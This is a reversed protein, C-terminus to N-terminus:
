RASRPAAPARHSRGGNAVAITGAVTGTGGLTATNAVAVASGSALAGTVLVTGAGVTTAGTYTSAGSLTQAGTGTKTVALAGATNKLVGAFTATANNGGLTLTPTGSGGDLTGTGSLGNITESFGNMTFAGGDVLNGASAGDPIQNAAGLVIADRTGTIVTDGQYNNATGANALTLTLLNGSSNDMSLGFAGTIQGSLTAAGNGAGGTSFTAAALNATITGSLVNGTTDFRFGVRDNGLATDFVVGNKLAIGTATDLLVGAHDTIADGITIAGTGYPSSTITGATTIAGTVRMRTGGSANNTLTLGGSFTNASTGPFLQNSTLANAIRVAVARTAGNRILNAFVATLNNVAFTSTGGGAANDIITAGAANNPVDSVTANFGNLDLTGTGLLSLTCVPLTGAAGLQYTGGAITTQGTWSSTGGLTLTGSGYKTVDGAGSITGTFTTSTNGRGVWLNGGTLAVTGAGALAYIELDPTIAANASAIDVMTTNGAGSIQANLGLGGTGQYYGVALQPARHSSLPGPGTTIGQTFNNNVVLM